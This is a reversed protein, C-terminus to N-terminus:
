AATVARIRQGIWRACREAVANGLQRYRASDSLEVRRGQDDIGWENWDDPFGQLRCCEVPTLRRVGILSSAVADVRTGSVSGAYDGARVPYSRDNPSVGQQWAFAILQGEEAAQQTSMAHGHRKDHAQLTGVVLHAGPETRFGGNNGGSNLTDVVYTQQSEDYHNTTKGFALPVAVFTESEFDDRRSGHGASIATSVAIEAPNNGGYAILRSHPRGGSGPNTLAYALDDQMELQRGTDRTRETIAAAFGPGAERSPPPNGQSRPIFSLIETCRETGIDRRAFVGFLRRRRQALGFYQADLLTWAGDFGIFGFSSVVTFFDAGRHEPLVRGRFKTGGCVDCSEDDAGAITGCQSCRRRCKRCSCSTLLGPVNEWIAYLPQLEYIARLMEFFLGSRHDALGGRLGAVSLGQCPFGGSVIHVYPLNHKGANRIDSFILSGPHHRRLVNQCDKDIEVSWALKIGANLLGLGFGSIGGFFQGHILDSETM